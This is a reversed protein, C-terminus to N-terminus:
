AEISLSLFVAKRLVSGQSWSNRQWRVCIDIFSSFCSTSHTKFMYWMNWQQQKHPVWFTKKSHKWGMGWPEEMSLLIKKKKQVSILAPSKNLNGVRRQSCRRFVFTKNLKRSAKLTLVDWGKDFCLLGYHAFSRHWRTERPCKVPPSHSRRHIGKDCCSEM